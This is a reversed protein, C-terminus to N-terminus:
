RRGLLCGAPGAVVVPHARHSDPAGSVAVDDDDPDASPVTRTQSATVPAGTPVGSDPWSPGTVETAMPRAPVAVDDHGPRGIVLHPDPVRDGASWDATRQGAVVERHGATAMPRAPSRSMMTDPESSLVTRTQSATM